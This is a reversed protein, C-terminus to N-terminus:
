NGGDTGTNEHIWTHEAWIVGRSRDLETGSRYVDKGEVLMHIVNELKFHWEVKEHVFGIDVLYRGKVLPLSPIKLTIIGRDYLQKLAYGSIPMTSLRLLEYEAEDKIQIVFAPSAFTRSSEYRIKINLEDGSTITKFGNTGEVKIETIRFGNIDSNKLSEENVITAENRGYQEMYADIVEDVDADLQLMGQNLLIGRGCVHRVMALNHSVFLLTRGKDQTIEKMRGMARQQFELDGVALVEDIILVAPNLFAAVAFGLRVRMGTSYRKIPTDIFTGCGSFDVIDDFRDAIERKKMGLIAGNLYINERGTLEPHMGTGVELLSAIRGKTKVIGRTPSTIRSIIKLLTSKGAGNSGIIGVTEGQSVELNIDQLAWTYEYQKKSQTAGHANVKAYPDERGRIRAWWRNLDHSLTGTGIEGLYYEKSLKEVKIVKNHM